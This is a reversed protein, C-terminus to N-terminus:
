NKKGVANIFYNELTEGMLSFGTTKVGNEFLVDSVKDKQDTYDYLQVSGDPM